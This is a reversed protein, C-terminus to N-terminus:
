DRRQNFNNMAKDIQGALIMEVAQCAKNLAPKLKVKEEESFESLVYDAADQNEPKPGIGVRVRPFIQTGIEKVISKLGKHSGPSGQFRIRIEGLDIDLDDYIVLLNEPKIKFGAMLDRVALGSLNMFTQPLALIMKVGNRETEALKSRFGRTKLQAGWSRALLKVVMFGANHRTDSYEPGPNGLGVVLWM